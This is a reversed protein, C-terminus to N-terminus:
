FLPLALHGERASECELETGIYAYWIGDAAPIKVFMVQTNNDLEVARTPIKTGDYYRAEVTHLKDLVAGDQITLLGSAPVEFVWEDRDGQFPKSGFPKEKIAIVGKFGNPVLYTITPGTDCGSLLLTLTALLLPFCRCVNMM